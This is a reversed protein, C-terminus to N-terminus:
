RCRRGLVRWQWRGHCCQWAPLASRRRCGPLPTRASRLPHSAARALTSGCLPAATQSLRWRLWAPRRACSSFSPSLPLFLDAERIILPARAPLEERSQHWSSHRHSVRRLEASGGWAFNGSSKTKTGQHLSVPWMACGLTVWVARHWGLYGAQDEGCM